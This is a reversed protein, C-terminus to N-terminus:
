EAGASTDESSVDGRSAVTALPVVEAVPEVKGSEIATGTQESIIARAQDHTTVPLLQVVFQGFNGTALEPKKQVQELQIAEVMNAAVTKDLGLRRCLTNIAGIKDHFQYEVDEVVTGEGGEPNPLVRRKIKINKIARRASPPVKKWDRPTPLGTIPDGDFYAAPDAFAITATERLVKRANVRLEKEHAKTLIKIERAIHPKERLRKGNVRAVLANSGYARQYALVTNRSHVYEHIFAWQRANLPGDEDSPEEDPQAVEDAM